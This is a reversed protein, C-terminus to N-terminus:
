TQEQALHLAKLDIEYIKRHGELAKDVNGEKIGDFMVRHYPVTTCWISEVGTLSNGCVDLLYTLNDIVQTVMSNNFLQRLKQHFQYDIEASFCGTEANKELRILEEEIGEFDLCDTKGCLGRIIENELMSKIQLLEEYNVCWLKVSVSDIASDSTLFTGKGAKVELVKEHELVRLAERVSNRSTMFHEALIRESPIKDGSKLSNDKIYELIGDAIKNYLLDKEIPKISVLTKDM